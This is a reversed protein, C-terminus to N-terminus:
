QASASATREADGSARRAAITVVAGRSPVLVVHRPRVAEDAADTPLFEVSRLITALITRMEVLAFGAGLCRRAGGGFPLWAGPDVREDFREPRFREPDLHVSPSRHVLHITPVITTGAPLDYGAVRTPATLVRAIEGAVPRIRLSEKCIADLQDDDAQDAAEVARALMAADRTLREFTWALAIATTEHGALLLTVLQDCLEDDTMQEGQDDRSRVLLSLVDDGDANASEARARRVEEMLARRAAARIRTQRRWPGVRRLVSPPPFLWLPSGIEVMPRLVRRLAAARVRDDVGLVARLIVDLTIRQMRPLLAFPTRVPWTAVEAETFRRIHEIQRRVADGHFAPLMMSRARRHAEGDTVFVSRPGVIPTMVRNGEGAHFRDPDGQLVPRIDDPDALHVETGFGAFRVTFRDGYRRHCARMFAIPAVIALATQVIMPLPPGPPLDSRPM